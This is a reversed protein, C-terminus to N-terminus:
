SQLKKIFHCVTCLKCTQIVRGSIIKVLGQIRLSGYCGCEPMIKLYHKFFQRSWNKRKVSEHLAPTKRVAGAASLGM